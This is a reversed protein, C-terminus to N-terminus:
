ILKKKTLFIATTTFLVKLSSRTTSNLTVLNAINVVDPYFIKNCIYIYLLSYLIFCFVGRGEKFNRGNRLVYM